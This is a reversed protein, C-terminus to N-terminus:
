GQDRVEIRAGEEPKGLALPQVSPLVIVPEMESGVGYASEGM